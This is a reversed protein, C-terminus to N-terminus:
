PSGAQKRWGRGRYEEQELLLTPPPSGRDADLIRDLLERYSQGAKSLPYERPSEPHVGQGRALIVTTTQLAVRSLAGLTPRTTTEPFGTVLRAEHHGNDYVVGLVDAVISLPEDPMAAILPSKVDGRLSRENNQAKALLERLSHRSDAVLGDIFVADRSVRLMPSWGVLPEQEIAVMPFVLPKRYPGFSSQGSLRYLENSGLSSSVLPLVRQTTRLDHGPVPTQNEAAMPNTMWAFLGAIALTLVASTIAWTSKSAVNATTPRRTFLWGALGAVFAALLLGATVAGLDLSAKAAALAERVVSDREQQSFSTPFHVEVLRHLYLGFGSFLPLLLAPALLYSLIRVTRGARRSAVAGAAVGALVLSPFSLITGLLLVKRQNWEQTMPSAEWHPGRLNIVDKILEGRGVSTIAGAILPLVLSTAMALVTPWFPSPAPSSGRNLRAVWSLHVTQVVVSVVGIATLQWFYPWGQM